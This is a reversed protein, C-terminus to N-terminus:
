TGGTAFGSQVGDIFVKEWRRHGGATTESWPWVAEARRIESLVSEDIRRDLAAARRGAEGNAGGPCPPACAPVEVIPEDIFTEGAAGWGGM